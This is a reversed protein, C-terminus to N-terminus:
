DMKTPPANSKPIDVLEYGAQQMTERLSQLLDSFLSSDHHQIWCLVSLAAVMLRRTETDLNLNTDGLLLSQIMDHADAIEQQTRLPPRTVGSTTPQDAM